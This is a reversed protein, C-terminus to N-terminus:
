NLVQAVPMLAPRTSYQTIWWFLIIHGSVMLNQALSPQWIRQSLRPYIGLFDAVFYKRSLYRGLYPLLDYTVQIYGDIEVCDDLM